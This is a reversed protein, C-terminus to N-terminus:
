TECLIEMKQVVLTIRAQFSLRDWIGEYLVSFLSNAMRVM